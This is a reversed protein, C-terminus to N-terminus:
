FFVKAGNKNYSLEAGGPYHRYLFLPIEMFDLPM